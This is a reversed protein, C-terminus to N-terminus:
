FRFFTIEHDSLNNSVDESHEQDMELGMSCGSCFFIVNKQIKSNQKSNGKYEITFSIHMFIPSEAHTWSKKFFKKERGSLSSITLVFALFHVLANGFALTEDYM